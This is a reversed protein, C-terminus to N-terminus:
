TACGIVPLAFCLLMLGLILVNATHAPPHQLQRLVSLGQRSSKLFGLWQREEKSVQAAAQLTIGGPLLAVPGFQSPCHCSDQSLPM